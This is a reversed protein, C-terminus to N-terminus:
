LSARRKLTDINFGYSQNKICIFKFKITFFKKKVLFDTQNNYKLLTDGIQVIQKMPLYMGGEDEYYSKHGTNIDVGSYDIIRGSPGTDKIVLSAHKKLLNKTVEECSFEHVYGLLTCSIIFIALNKIIVQMFNMEVRKPISTELIFIKVARTINRSVRVLTTALM